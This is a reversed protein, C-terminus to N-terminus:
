QDNGPPRKDQTGRHRDAMFKKCEAMIHGEKDCYYCPGKKRQFNNRRVPQRVNPETIHGPYQGVQNENSLILPENIGGHDNASVARMPVRNRKRAQQFAEFELALRLAHDISKPKGQFVTWEMESDNLSDLFCDRALQEKIEVTANPYGLRIMRKIDQALESLTENKRRLRGKMQARYLESQNEPQFRAKLASVLHEYDHRNEARIDGLIGQADGRLSTALELAKETNNWRNIEAILEFHVLYDHLNTKGDFVDPKKRKSNGAPSGSSVPLAGNEVLSSPHGGVLQFAVPEGPSDFAGNTVSINANSGRNRRGQPFNLADVSGQGCGSREPNESPRSKQMFSSTAGAPLQSTLGIANGGVLGRPAPNQLCERVQRRLDEIQSSLRANEKVLMSVKVRDDTVVHDCLADGGSADGINEDKFLVEGSPTASRFLPQTLGTGLVDGPTVPTDKDFDFEPPTKDGVQSTAM